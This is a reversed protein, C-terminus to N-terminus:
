DSEEGRAIRVGREDSIIEIDPSFSFGETEPLDMVVTSKVASGEAKAGSNFYVIQKWTRTINDGLILILDGSEALELARATAEQEDAVVEIQDAPVGSELLQNKLM